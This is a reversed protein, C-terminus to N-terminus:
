FKKGVLAMLEAAATMLSDGTVNVAYLLAGPEEIMFYENGTLIGHYRRQFDNYRYINGDGIKTYRVTIDQRRGYHFIMNEIRGAIDRMNETRSTEM